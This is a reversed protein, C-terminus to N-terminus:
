IDASQYGAQMCIHITINPMRYHFSICLTHTHTHWHPHTSACEQATLDEVHSKFILDHSHTHTILCVLHCIYNEIHWLRHMENHDGTANRDCQLIDTYNSYVLLLLPPSSQCGKHRVTEIVIMLVVNGICGAVFVNIFTVEEKGIGGQHKSFSWLASYVHQLCNKRKLYAGM